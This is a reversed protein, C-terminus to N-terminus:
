PTKAEVPTFAGHEVRLSLWLRNRFAVVNHASVSLPSSVAAISLVGTPGFAPLTIARDLRVPLAVAPLKM